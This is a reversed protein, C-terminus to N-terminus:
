TGFREIRYHWSYHTSLPSSYSILYHSPLHTLTGHVPLSSVVHYSLVFIHLVCSEFSLSGENPGGDSLCLHLSCISNRSVSCVRDQRAMDPEVRAHLTMFKGGEVGRLKSMEEDVIKQLFPHPRLADKLMLSYISMKDPSAVGDDIDRALSRYQNLNQHPALHNSMPRPHTISRNVWIDWDLDKRHWVKIGPYVKGEIVPNMPVLRLHPHHESDYGAFRPLTPFLSNWHVVDWLRYHPVGKNTGYTDKWWISEEVIQGTKETNALLITGMFRHIQNNLGSYLQGQYSLAATQVDPLVKLTENLAKQYEEEDYMGTPQPTDMTEGKPTTTTPDEGFNAPESGLTANAVETGSNTTQAQQEGKPKTTPEEDFNAPESSLTANIEETGSNTTQAQPDIVVVGLPQVANRFSRYHYTTFAHGLLM